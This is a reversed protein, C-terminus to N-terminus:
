RDVEQRYMHLCSPANKTLIFKSGLFRYQVDFDSKECHINPKTEWESGSNKIDETRAIPGLIRSMSRDEVQFCTAWHLSCRPLLNKTDASFQIPFIMGSPLCWVDLTGLHCVLNEGEKAARCACSGYKSPADNVDWCCCWYLYWRKGIQLSGWSTNKDETCWEARGVLQRHSMKREM